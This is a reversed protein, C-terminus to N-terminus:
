SVATGAGGHEISPSTLRQEPEAGRLPPGLIDSVVDQVRYHAQGNRSLRRIGDLQDGLTVIALFATRKLPVRTLAARSQHLWVRSARGSRSRASGM